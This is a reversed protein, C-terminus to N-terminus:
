DINISKIKLEKGQIIKITFSKCSPCPEYFTTMSFISNCELCEAKAPISIIKRQANELLTNKVALELSFELASIEVGSITGIEIEIENIREANARLAEENAIDIISLAISMEHMQIRSYFSLSHNEAYYLSNSSKQSRYKIGLARNFYYDFLNKIAM